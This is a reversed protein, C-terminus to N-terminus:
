KYIYINHLHTQECTGTSDSNWMMRKDGWKIPTQKQRRNWGIWCEKPGQRLCRKRNRFLKHATIRPDHPRRQFIGLPNKWCGFFEVFLRFDFVFLRLGLTVASIVHCKLWFCERWTRSLPEQTAIVRRREQEWVDPTRTGAALSCM